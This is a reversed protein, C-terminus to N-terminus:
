SAGSKAEQPSTVQVVGPQRVNQMNEFNTM